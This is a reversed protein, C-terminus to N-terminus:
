FWTFPIKFLKGITSAIGELLIIDVSKEVEFM